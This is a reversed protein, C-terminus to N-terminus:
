KAENTPLPFRNPPTSDSLAGQFVSMPNDAGSVMTTLLVSLDEDGNRCGAFAPVNITGTLLGGTASRYFETDRAPPQSGINPDRDWYGKGTLNFEAPSTTQCSPGLGLSVGDVRLDTVQLNIQGTLIADSYLVSSARPNDPCNKNSQYTYFTQTSTIPVPLNDATRLQSIQVTAEAPVSGFAVTRVKIPPFYGYPEPAGAPSDVYALTNPASVFTFEHSCDTDLLDGPPLLVDATVNLAPVRIWQKAPRVENLGAAMLPAYQSYTQPVPLGPNMPDEAASAQQSALLCAGLAFVCLIRRTFKRSQRQQRMIVSDCLRHIGM